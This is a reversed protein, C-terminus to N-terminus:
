EELDKIRTPRREELWRALLGVIVPVPLSALARVISFDVGLIPAEWVIMRNIGLLSWGTLYAIVAGIDAGSAALVAVVPFSTMPGGFTVAGVVTALMLGRVGSGKGLWRAIADRPILVQALGVILLSAAIRPMIDVLLEINSFAARTFADPGETLYVAAGSAIMLVLVFGIAAM